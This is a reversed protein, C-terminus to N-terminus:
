SGLVYDTAGRLDEFSAEPPCRFHREAGRPTVGSFVLLPRLGAAVACEMDTDKDGVFFAGDLDLGYEDRADFVMQPSPKRKSAPDSSLLTDYYFQEIRAPAIAESIKQNIAALESSPTLGLAVGQQNSIIYLDHTAHLRRLCDATWPFLRLEEVSRVYPAVDVNLVGDRDLFIPRRANSM